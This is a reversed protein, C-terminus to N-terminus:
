TALPQHKLNVQLLPEDKWWLDECSIELCMQDQPRGQLFSLQLHQPAVQLLQGLALSCTTFCYCLHDWHLGDAFAKYGRWGGTRQLTWQWQQAFSCSAKAWAFHGWSSCLVATPNFASPHVQSALRWQHARQLHWPSMIFVPTVRSSLSRPVAPFFSSSMPSRIHSPSLSESHFQWALIFCVGWELVYLLVCSILHRIVSLLTRHFCQLFADKSSLTPIM